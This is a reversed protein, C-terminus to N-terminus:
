TLALLILGAGGGIGLFIAAGCTFAFGATAWDHFGKTGNVTIREFPANRALHKIIEREKDTLEDM